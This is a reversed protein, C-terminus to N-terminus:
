PLFSFDTALLKLDRAGNQSLDVSIEMIFGSAEVGNHNFTIYGFPNGDILALATKPLKANISFIYPQFYKGNLGSVQVARDEDVNVGGYTVNILANKEASGFEIYKGDQRDLISRLYGSHNLLNHKPSILLNYATLPFSLGTVSQLQSGLIPKLDGNGDIPNCDIMFTDNDSKNDSTATKSVNFKVRMQEIGYQDARAISKWELANQITTLPLTWVQGSNYEQRGNEDDTNGDNYGIEVANGMLELAPIMSYSNVNGVDMLQLPRMFSVAEELKFQGSDTGMGVDNLSYLSKFFDNFSMKIKADSIERIASGSTFILDKRVSNLFVSGVNIAPSIRAMFRKLLDFPRIGKCNSPDSVAAYEISIEGESVIMRNGTPAVTGGVYIYWYEGEQMNWNFDFNVDFPYLAISGGTNQTVLTQIIFPFKNSRIEVSFTNNAQLAISQTYGKLNGTIRTNVGGVRNCRVFSAYAFDDSPAAQGFNTNLATLFGSGFGNTVLDMGLVYRKAANLGNPDVYKTIWTSKESFNVGPLVVNVIDPGTLPFEYKINEKAKIDRGIGSELLTVTATIGDYEYQSFDLDSRFIVTYGWIDNITDDNREEITLRVGAEVGYKNFASRLVDAGEKVFQMPAGISRIIGFYKLDRKFLGITETEWEKPANNLIYDTNDLTLTYRFKKDMLEM